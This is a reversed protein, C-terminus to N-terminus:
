RVQRVEVGAVAHQAEQSATCRLSAGQQRCHALARGTRDYPTIRWGAGAREFLTFGYEAHTYFHALDTDAFPLQTSDLTAPLAGERASGSNGAVVTPVHASSFDLAEFLHVHGHMALTIGPPLLSDPYLARAASALGLVSPGPAGRGEDKAPGLGLIPHHSLFLNARARTALQAVSALDQQYRLMAPDQAAYAKGSVRASDFVILQQAGGLPVAYPTSFDATSDRAPDVCARVPTWPESALFRFWGVGARACSEHNGRVFVWPAAALLPAAPTFLDARWAAEGYGWPSQRCGPQSDPCPSERYHLDGLHVVLQPHLRAAARAVAAFPWAAPDACDQFRGESGKLRCGSDGLVVFRTVRAPAQPLRQAGLQVRQAGRALALECVRSPFVADQREAQASDPRAAVSAPGVRERSPQMRGDVRLSPCAGASLVRVSAQGDPGLVTFASAALAALLM